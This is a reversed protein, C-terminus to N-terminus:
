IVRGRAIPRKLSFALSTTSTDRFFIYRRSTNRSTAPDISAQSMAIRQKVGFETQQRSEAADELRAAPGLIGHALLDPGEASMRGRTRSLPTRTPSWGTPKPKVAEAPKLRLMQAVSGPKM